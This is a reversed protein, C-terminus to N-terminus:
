SESWGPPLEVGPPPGSRRPLDDDLKLWPLWTETWVHDEPQVDEARDLSGVLIYLADSTEWTLSSGCCGCFGRSARDSSKYLTPRGKTWEFADRSFRGGPQFASGTFKQCQTCHCNGVWSPDESAKYRVDGCLCGGTWTM